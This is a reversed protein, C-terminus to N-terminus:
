IKVLRLLEEMSEGMESLSFCFKLDLHNKRLAMIQNKINKSYLIADAMLQALKQFDHPGMGFRTMEAVGLRLAASATFGEEQPTAQFNCIINNEELAQAILPGQSYGVEVIVQHTETFGVAADGCVELGCDHLANAFAKANAIVAPQYQDKFANMEMAAALLGLLTGLHHNSVAGPFARRAVAEWLELYRDKEANFDAAVIGRQTGFFTKHTSGTVVDAGEMFPQQFHPGALGLV